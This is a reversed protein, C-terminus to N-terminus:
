TMAKSWISVVFPHLCAHACVALYPVKAEAVTQMEFIIFSSKQQTMICATMTLSM